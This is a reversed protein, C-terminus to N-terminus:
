ITLSATETQLFPEKRSERAKRLGNLQAESPKPYQSAAVCLAKAADKRFRKWLQIAQIRTLRNVVMIKSFMSEEEDTWGKGTNPNTWM